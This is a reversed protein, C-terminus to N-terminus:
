KQTVPNYRDVEMLNSTAVHSAKTLSIQIFLVHPVELHFCELALIPNKMNERQRSHYSEPLVGTACMSMPTGWAFASTIQQKSSWRVRCSVKCSHPM